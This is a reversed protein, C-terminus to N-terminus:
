PTQVVDKKIFLYKYDSTRSIYIFLEYNINFLTALISIGLTDYSLFHLVDPIETTFILVTAPYPFGAFLSCLTEFFTVKTEQKRNSSFAFRDFLNCQM